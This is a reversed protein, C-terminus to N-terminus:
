PQTAPTRQMEQQFAKLAQGFQRATGSAKDLARQARGTARELSADVREATRDVAAGAQDVTADVREVAQDVKAGARDIAADARDAIADIRPAPAIPPAAEVGTVIDAYSRSPHPESRDPGFDTMNMGPLTPFTGVAGGPTTAPSSELTEPSGGCGALLVLGFSVAVAGRAPTSIQRM